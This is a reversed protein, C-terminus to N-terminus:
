EETRKEKQNLTTRNQRHLKDLTHRPIIMYNKTALKKKENQKNYNSGKSFSSHQKKKNM